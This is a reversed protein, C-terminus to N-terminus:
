GIQRGSCVTTCGEAACHYRKNLFEQSNFRLIRFDDQEELITACHGTDLVEGRIDLQINVESDIFRIMPLWQELVDGISINRFQEINSERPCSFKFKTFPTTDTHQSQNPGQIVTDIISTGPYHYGIKVTQRGNSHHHEIRDFFLMWGKFGIGFQGTSDFTGKKTTSGIEMLSFMEGAPVGRKPGRFPAGDHEFELLEDTVRLRINLPSDHNRVDLANQVLERLYQKLPINDRGAELFSLFPGGVQTNLSKHAHTFQKQLHSGTLAFTTEESEIRGWAEQHNPGRGTTRAHARLTGCHSCGM